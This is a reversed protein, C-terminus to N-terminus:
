RVIGRVRLARQSTLAVLRPTSSCLSRVVDMASCLASEQLDIGSTFHGAFWLGETGQWSRLRRSADMMAPTKISHQFTREFLVEKPAQRRYTTWSKFVDLTKGNTQGFGAGLWISLENRGDPEPGRGPGRPERGMSGTEVGVNALVWNRRDRHVYTPDAHITLKHSLHEYDDLVAVLGEAWPLRALLRKSEWPPANVVVADFPGWRADRSYVFWEEEVKEVRLIPTRVHIATDSCQEALATITAQFGGRSSWFTPKTLPSKPHSPAFLQLIARASSRKTDELPHGESATLWPLLIQTKFRERVRLGEVWDAMTVGYDGTFAMKRAAHMYVAFDLAHLPTRVLNTSSFYPESRDLPLVCLGGPIELRRVARAVAPSGQAELLDLLAIYTPHTEPHFFQAGLDVVFDRGDSTITESDCNGGLKEKAEFLSVSWDHGCLWATAVGGMGGGIIALRKNPARSSSTSM